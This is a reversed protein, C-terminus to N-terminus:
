YLLNYKCITFPVKVLLYYITFPVKALLITGRGAGPAAPRLVGKAPGCYPRASRGWTEMFSLKDDTERLRDSGGGKESIGLIGAVGDGTM